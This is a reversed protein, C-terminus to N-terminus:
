FGDPEQLQMLLCDPRKKSEEARLWEDNQGCGSTLRAEIRPGDPRSFIRVKMRNAFVKTSRARADPL